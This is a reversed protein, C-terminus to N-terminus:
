LPTFPGRSGPDGLARLIEPAVTDPIFQARGDGFGANGGGPHFSGVRGGNNVGIELEDLTIDTTPDMWNFPEKVEIVIIQNSLGKTRLAMTSRARWDGKRIPVLVGIIAAYSCGVGPNDPCQFVAPTRDHFQRNHESDWPEDLRIQQYLEIEGLFPLLHVRWSHLPNGQEDFTYLPPLFTQVSQDAYNHFALMIQRINRTCQMRDAAPTRQVARENVEEGSPAQRTPVAQVPQEQREVVSIIPTSVLLALFSGVGWQGFGSTIRDTDWQFILTDGEVEPLWTRLYGKMFEFFLPPMDNGNQQAQLQAAAIGGDIASVMLERLMTADEASPMKVTIARWDKAETGFLLESVPVSAAIWEINNVAFRLLNVVQIPMEPPPPINQAGEKVFKPIRIIAKIEDSPPLSKLAQLIPSNNDAAVNRLWESFYQEVTPGGPSGVPPLPIVPSFLFDGMPLTHQRLLEAVQMVSFYEQLDEDTKGRWPAVALYPMGQEIWTDNGILAVERIGFKETLAELTPRIMTDLKELEVDLDRLTERQSRDDFGLATLLTEALTRAETKLLDVNVQSFDIHVFLVTDETLLPAFTEQAPAKAAFLLLTLAFLPICLRQLTKM